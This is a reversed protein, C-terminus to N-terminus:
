IEMMNLTELELIGLDGVPYVCASRPPVADKRDVSWTSVPPASEGDEEAM